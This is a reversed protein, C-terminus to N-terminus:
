APRRSRARLDCRAKAQAEPARPRSSSGARCAPAARRVVCAATAPAAAPSGPAAAGSGPAAAGSGPAAAFSSPATGRCLLLRFPRM